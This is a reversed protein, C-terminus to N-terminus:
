LEQADRIKQSFGTTAKELSFVTVEALLEAYKKGTKTGTFTSFNQLEQDSLDRYTFLLGELVKDKIQAELEKKSEKLQDARAQVVDYDHEGMYRSTAMGSVIHLSILYNVTTDLINLNKALKEIESLRKQSPPSSKLKISFQDRENNNETTWSNGQARTIKKALDTDLWTLVDNIELDNLKDRIFEITVNEIDADTNAEDLLALIKQKDTDRKVGANDLNALDMEIQQKAMVPIYKIRDKISSKYYLDNAHNSLMDANAIGASSLCLILM